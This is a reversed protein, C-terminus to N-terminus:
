RDGKNEFSPHLPVSESHKPVESKLLFALCCTRIARIQSNIGYDALVVESKRAIRKGASPNRPLRPEIPCASLTGNARISPASSHLTKRQPDRKAGPHRCTCAPPYIM